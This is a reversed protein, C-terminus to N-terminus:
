FGGVLKRVLYEAETISDIYDPHIRSRDHSHWINYEKYYTVLWIWEIDQCKIPWLAFKKKYETICVMGPDDRWNPRLWEESTM